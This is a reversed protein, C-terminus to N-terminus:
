RARAERMVALCEDDHAVNHWNVIEFRGDSHEAIATCSGVWDGCNLYQVGFEDHIAAHHIHGCIVGEAAHRDAEAALAREFESIYSVANKVRLKTWQWCSLRSLGFQRRLTNFAADIALVAVSIWRGLRALSRAREALSDFHDGHVVLYRRGDAATHVASEVVQIGGFHTGCYDRLFDDHNGPIYIVRVGRRAARLLRQVVANQAQPWYWSSKLQWGDIIDGVLYIADAEHTRLFDLLRDAQCARTGLHVDSLFIARYRRPGGALMM